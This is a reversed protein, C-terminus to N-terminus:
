MSYFSLKFEFLYSNQSYIMVEYYKAIFLSKKTCALVSVETNNFEKLLMKISYTNLDWILTCDTSSTIVTYTDLFLLQQIPKEHAQFYYGCTELKEKLQISTLHHNASIKMPEGMYNCIM